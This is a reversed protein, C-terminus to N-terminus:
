WIRTRHRDTTKHANAGTVFLAVLAANRVENLMHEELCAAGGM